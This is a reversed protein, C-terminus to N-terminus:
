DLSSVEFIKSGNYILNQDTCYNWIYEIADGDIILFLLMENCTVTFFKPQGKMNRMNKQWLVTTIEIKATGTVIKHVQM